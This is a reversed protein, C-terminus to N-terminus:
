CYVPKIPRKNRKQQYLQEATETTERKRDRLKSRLWELPDNIRKQFGLAREQLIFELKCVLPHPTAGYRGRGRLYKKVFRTQLGHKTNKVYADAIFTRKLDFGEEKARVIVEKLTDKLKHSIRHQNWSLQLLADDLSLGKIDGLPQIFRTHEIHIFNKFTKLIKSGGDKELRYLFGKGWKGKPSEDDEAIPELHAKLSQKIQGIHAAANPNVPGDTELINKIKDYVRPPTTNTGKVRSFFRVQKFM